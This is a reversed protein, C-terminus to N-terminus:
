LVQIYNLKEALASIRELNHLNTTNSQSSFNTRSSANM